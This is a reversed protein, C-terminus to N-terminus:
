QYVPTFRIKQDTSNATRSTVVYVSGAVVKISFDKPLVDTVSTFYYAGTPASRASLLYRAVNSSSNPPYIDYYTIGSSVALATFDVWGDVPATFITNNNFYVVDDSTHNKFGLRSIYEKFDNTINNKLETYLASVINSGDKKLAANEVRALEDSFGTISDLKDRYNLINNYTQTNLNYYDIVSALCDNVYNKSANVESLYEKINNVYETPDVSTGEETKVCLELKRSLIQILRTIYDLSYELSSLNLLSSNNYETEQSIPLNLVLSLKHNEDLVDYESTQLPFTIYSGNENKIENVSYDLNETLKTKTEFEDYLYVELQSTNEIYFNFDFTTTSSNGVYNNVPPIDHIM